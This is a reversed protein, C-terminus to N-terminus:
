STVVFKLKACYRDMHFKKLQVGGGNREIFKDIEREILKSRSLNKEDTFLITLELMQM